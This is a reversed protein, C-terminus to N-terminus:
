VEQTKILECLERQVLEGGGSRVVTLYPRCMVSYKVWNARKHASSSKHGVTHEVGVGLPTSLGKLVVVQSVRM